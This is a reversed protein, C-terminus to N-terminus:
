TSIEVTSAKLASPGFTDWHKAKHGLNGLVTCYVYVKYIICSNYFIIFPCLNQFHTRVYFITMQGM